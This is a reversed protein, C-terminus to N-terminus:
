IIFSPRTPLSYTYKWLKLTNKLESRPYKNFDYRLHLPKYGDEVEIGNILFNRKIKKSSKVFLKNFISIKNYMFHLDKSNFKNIWFQAVKKRKTLNQDNKKIEDLIIAASLNSITENFIKSQIIKINKENKKIFSFLNNKVTNKIISKYNSCFKKTFREYKKKLYINSDEIKLNPLKEKLINKNNIILWGGEPTFIPKGIGTSFFSADAYTGVDRKKYKLGFAQCCDEVFIIKKKKCLELIKFFDDSFSGGLYPFVVVKTNKNIIKKISLFSPNLDDKIDVFCPVLNNSIIPEILGYCSYSPIVIESNEPLSLNKLLIQFAQRGSKTILIDKKSGYKDKLIKYLQNYSSKYNNEDTTIFEKILDSNIENILFPRYKGSLLTQSYCVIDKVFNNNKM